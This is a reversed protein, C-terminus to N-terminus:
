LDVEKLLCSGESIYCDEGESNSSHLNIMQIQKIPSTRKVDDDGNRDYGSNSNDSNCCCYFSCCTCRNDVFWNVIIYM